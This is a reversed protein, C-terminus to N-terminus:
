VGAKPRFESAFDGVFKFIPAPYKLVNFSNESVLFTCPWTSWKSKLPPHWSIWKEDHLFDFEADSSKLGWSGFYNPGFDYLTPFFIPSTRLTHTSIKSWHWVFLFVLLVVCIVTQFNTSLLHTLIKHKQFM